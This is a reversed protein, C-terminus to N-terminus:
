GASASQGSGSGGHPGGAGNGSQDGGNSAGSGGTSGNSGGKGASPSGGSGTTVGGSGGPSPPGDFLDKKSACALAVLGLGVLRTLRRARTDSSTLTEVM